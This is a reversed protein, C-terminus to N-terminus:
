TQYKRLFGLIALNKKIIAKPMHSQVKPKKALIVSVIISAIATLEATASSNLMDIIMKGANTPDFM